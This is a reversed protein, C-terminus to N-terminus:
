VLWCPIPQRANHLVLVRTQGVYAAATSSLLLWLGCLNEHGDVAKMGPRGKSKPAYLTGCVAFANQLVIFFLMLIDTCPEM